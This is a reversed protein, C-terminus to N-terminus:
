RKKEIEARLNDFKLDSTTVSAQGAEHAFEIKGHMLAANFNARAYEDKNLISIIHVEARPVDKLRPEQWWTTVMPTLTRLLADTIETDSHCALNKAMQTLDVYAFLSGNKLGHVSNTRDIVIQIPACEAAPQPATSKGPLMLFIGLAVAVLVAVIGMSKRASM